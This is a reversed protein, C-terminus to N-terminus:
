RLCRAPGTRSPGGPRIEGATSTAEAAAQVRRQWALVVPMGVLELVTAAVFADNPRGKTRWSLVRAVGGLIVTGLTARLVGGRQEVKPLTSWIIPAAAFWFANAFRYESDLSAEVTSGDQPITSPGVIMGTLGSAAPILALVGLTWQLQRRRGTPDSGFTM